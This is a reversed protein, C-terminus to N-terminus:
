PHTSAVFFFDGRVNRRAGRSKRGRKELERRHDRDEKLWQLATQYLTTNNIPWPTPETSFSGLRMHAVHTPCLGSTLGDYIHTADKRPYAPPGLLVIM